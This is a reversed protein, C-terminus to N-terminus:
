KCGFFWAILGRKKPKDPSMTNRMKGMEKMQVEHRIEALQSRLAEQENRLQIANADGLEQLPICRLQAELSALKAKDEVRDTLLKIITEQAELVLSKLKDVEQLHTERSVTSVKLEISSVHTHEIEEHHVPEIEGDSGFFDQLFYENFDAPAPLDDSISSPGDEDSDMFPEELCSINTVEGMQVATRAKNRRLRKSERLVARRIDSITSEGGGDILPDAAFAALLDEMSVTESDVVLNEDSM